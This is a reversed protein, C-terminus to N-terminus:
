GILAKLNWFLYYPSSTILMTCLEDMQMCNNLFTSVDWTFSASHHPLVLKWWNRKHRFSDWTEVILSNSIKVKKLPNERLRIQVVRYILGTHQQLVLPIPLTKFNGPREKTEISDYPLFRLFLVFFIYLKLSIYFVCQPFVM